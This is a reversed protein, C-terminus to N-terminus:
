KNKYIGEKIREIEKEKSKLSQQLLNMTVKASDLERERAEKQFKITNNLNIQENMSLKVKTLELQSLHLQYRLSHCENDMLSLTNLLKHMESNLQSIVQHQSMRQANSLDYSNTVDPLLYSLGSNRKDKKYDIRDIKVDGDVPKCQPIEEISELVLPNVAWHEIYKQSLESLENNDIYYYQCQDKQEENAYNLERIEHTSNIKHIPYEFWKHKKNSNQKLEEKDEIKVNDDEQNFYDKSQTNLSPLSAWVEYNSRKSRVSDNKIKKILRKTTQSRNGIKNRMEDLDDLSEKKFNFYHQSQSLNMTQSQKINNSHINGENNWKVKNQIFEELNRIPDDTEMIKPVTDQNKVTNTDYSHSRKSFINLYLSVQNLSSIEKSWRQIDRQKQNVKYQDYAEKMKLINYSASKNKFNTVSKPKSEGM